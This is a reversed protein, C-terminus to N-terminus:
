QDDQNVFTFLAFFATVMGLFMVVILGYAEANVIEMVLGKNATYAIALFSVMGIWFGEKYRGWIIALVVLILVPIVQTLPLTAVLASCFELLNSLTEM